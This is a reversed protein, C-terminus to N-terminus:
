YENEIVEMIYEKEELTFNGGNVGKEIMLEIFHRILGPFFECRCDRRVKDSVHKGNVLFQRVKKPDWKKILEPTLRITKRLNLNSSDAM